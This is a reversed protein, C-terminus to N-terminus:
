ILSQWGLTKGDLLVETMVWIIAVNVVVYKVGVFTPPKAFDPFGVVQIAEMKM